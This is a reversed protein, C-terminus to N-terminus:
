RFGSSYLDMPKDQMLNTVKNAVEIIRVCFLQLRPELLRFYGGYSQLM